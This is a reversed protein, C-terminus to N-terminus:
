CARTGTSRSKGSSASEAAPRLCEVLADVAPCAELRRSRVIGIERYPAKDSLSIARVNAPLPLYAAAMPVIAVGLGRGVMSFMAALDDIEIAEVVAVRQGILFREVQRGGFSSRDYRLFPNTALLRRWDQGELGAPVILEYPERVMPRWDFAPPMGFPPRIMIALDLDGADMRDLLHLSVGPTVHM